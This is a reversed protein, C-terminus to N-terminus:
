RHLLSTFWAADIGAGATFLWSRRDNSDLARLVGASVSLALAEVEFELGGFNRHQVDKQRLDWTRLASLKVGGQLLGITTASMAGVSLKGGGIGGEIEVLVSKGDDGGGDIDFLVGLAVSVALPYSGRLLARLRAQPLSAEVPLVETSGNQHRVIGVPYAVFHEGQATQGAAIPTATEETGLEILPLSNPIQAYVGSPILSLSFCALLFLSVRM